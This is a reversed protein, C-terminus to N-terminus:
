KQVSLLDVDFILISNPPILDGHAQNQYGLPSPVYITIKGREQIYRIGQDLGSVVSGSGVTFPYSVQNDYTNVFVTSDLLMGKYNIRVTNGNAPYSGFGQNHIVYRLGSSKKVATINNDALYQDIIAVDKDLNGYYDYFYTQKKCSFVFILAMLFALNIFFYIKKM